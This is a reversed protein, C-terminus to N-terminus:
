SLVFLQPTFLNDFRLRLEDCKQSTGCVGDFLILAPSNLDAPVARSGDTSRSDKWRLRRSGKAREKWRLLPSAGEMEVAIACRSHGCWLNRVLPQSDGLVSRHRNLMLEIGFFVLVM